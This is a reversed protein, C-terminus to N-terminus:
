FPVCEGITVMIIQWNEHKGNRYWDNRMKKDVRQSEKFLILVLQIELWLYNAFVISNGIWNWYSFQVSRMTQIKRHGNIKLRKVHNAHRFNDITFDLDFHSQFITNTQKKLSHPYNQKISYNSPLWIQHPPLVLVCDVVSSLTGNLMWYDSM